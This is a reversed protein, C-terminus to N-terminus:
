CVALIRLLKTLLPALHNGEKLFRNALNGACDLNTSPQTRMQLHVHKEVVVFILQTRDSCVTSEAKTPSTHRAKEMVVSKNSRVM